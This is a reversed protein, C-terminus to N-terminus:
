RVRSQLTKATMSNGPLIFNEETYEKAVTYRMKLVRSDGHDVIAHLKEQIQSINM